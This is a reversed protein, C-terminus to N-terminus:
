MCFYIIEFNIEAKTL